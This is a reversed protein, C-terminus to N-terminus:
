GHYLLHQEGDSTVPKDYDIVIYLTSGGSTEVTIFQKNNCCRLASRPDSDDESFGERGPCSASAGPGLKKWLLRNRMGGDSYAYAPVTFVASLSYSCGAALMRFHKM